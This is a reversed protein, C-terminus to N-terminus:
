SGDGEGCKRCGPCAVGLYRGTGGCLDIEERERVRSAARRRVRLEAREKATKPERPPLDFDFAESWPQTRSAVSWHYDAANDGRRLGGRFRRETRVFEDVADQCM